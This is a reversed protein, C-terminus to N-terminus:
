MSLLVFRVLFLKAAKGRVELEYSSQLWKGQVYVECEYKGNDKLRLDSVQLRATLWDLTVHSYSGHVKEEIGDYEVVISGNHKWLTKDPPQTIGPDLQVQQGKLGYIM